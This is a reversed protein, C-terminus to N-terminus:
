FFLHSSLLHFRFFWPLGVVVVHHASFHHRPQFLQFYNNSFFMWFFLHELNPHQIFSALAQWFFLAMGLLFLEFLVAVPLHPYSEFSIEKSLHHKTFEVDFSHSSSCGFDHTMFSMSFNRNSARLLKWDESIRCVMWCCTFTLFHHFLRLERQCPVPFLLYMSIGFLLRLFSKEPVWPSIRDRPKVERVDISGAVRRFFTLWFDLGFSPLNQPSSKPNQACM